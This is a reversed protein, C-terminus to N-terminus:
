EEGGTAEEGMGIDGPYRAGFGGFTRSSHIAGERQKVRAARYDESFGQEKLKDKLALIEAKLQNIKDRLMAITADARTTAIDGRYRITLSTLTLNEPTIPIELRSESVDVNKIEGNDNYAIRYIVDGLEKDYEKIKEASIFPYQTNNYEFFMPIEDNQPIIDTQTPNEVAGRGRRLAAIWVGLKGNSAAWNLIAAAIALIALIILMPPIKVATTYLLFEIM